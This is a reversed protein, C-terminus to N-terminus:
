DREPPASPTGTPSPTPTPAETGTGTPTGTPTEVAEGYWDPTRVADVEDVRTLEFGFEVVRTEGDVTLRYRVDLAVVLGSERVTAVARYGTVNGGLRQPEGTAVVLLPGDLSGDRTLRTRSTSLYRAVYEETRDTFVGERASDLTAARREYRVEVGGDTTTRQWVRRGDAFADLRVSTSEREGATDDDAASGNAATERGTEREAGTSPRPHYEGVLRYRYHTGNVVLARQYVIGWQSGLATGPAAPVGASEDGVTRGRIAPADVPTV